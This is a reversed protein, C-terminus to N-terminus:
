PTWARQALWTSRTAFKDRRRFLATLINLTGGLMAEDELYYPLLVFNTVPDKELLGHWNILSAAPLRWAGVSSSFQSIQVWTRNIMTLIAAIMYFANPSVSGTVLVTLMMCFSRRHAHRWYWCLWVLRLSKAFNKFESFLQPRTMARPKGASGVGWVAQETMPVAGLTKTRIM